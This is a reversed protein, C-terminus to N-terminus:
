CAKCSAASAVFRSFRRAFQKRCRQQQAAFLNDLQQYHEPLLDAQFQKLWGRWVSFDQLRGLIDQLKKLKKVLCPVLEAPYLDAFFELLYRLKKGRIRLRHYDDDASDRGLTAGKGLLKRLNKDIQRDVVEGLAEQAARNHSWSALEASWRDAFSRCTESELHPRLRNASKERTSALLKLVALLAEEAVESTLSKSDTLAQQLTDLDRLEGSVESFWTLEDRFGSVQPLENKMQGLLARSRRVAVRFDHLADPNQNCCWSKRNKELLQVQRLLIESGACTVPQQRHLKSM